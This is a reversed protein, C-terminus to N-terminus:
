LTYVSSSRNPTSAERPTLFKNKYMNIMNEIYLFVAKAFVAHKMELFVRQRIGKLILRNHLVM